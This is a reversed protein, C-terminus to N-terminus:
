SKAKNKELLSLVKNLKEALPILVDGKRLKIRQSYDGKIVKALIKEIRSLCGLGRHLLLLLVLMFTILVLSFTISFILFAKEEGLMLNREQVFRMTAYANIFLCLSIFLLAFNVGKLRKLIILNFIRRQIKGM